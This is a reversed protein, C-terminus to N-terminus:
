VRGIESTTISEYFVIAAKWIKIAEPPSISMDACQDDILNHLTEWGAGDNAFQDEGYHGTIHNDLDQKNVTVRM